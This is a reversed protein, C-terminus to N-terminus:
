LMEMMMNLALSTWTLMAKLEYIKKKGFEREEVGPQINSLIDETAIRRNM